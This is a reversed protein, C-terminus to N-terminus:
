MIYSADPYELVFDPPKPASVKSTFRLSLMLIFWTRRSFIAELPRALIQVGVDVESVVQLAVALAKQSTQPIGLDTIILELTDTFGSLQCSM